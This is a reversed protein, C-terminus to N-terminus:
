ATPGRDAANGQSRRQERGKRMAAPEPAPEDITPLGAVWAELDARRWRPRSPSLLAIAPVRAIFEPRRRLGHAARISIGLFRAVMELDFVIPEIRPQRAEPAHEVRPTPAEGIFSRARTRATMQSRGPCLGSLRDMEPRGGRAVHLGPRDELASARYGGQDRPLVVSPQDAGAASDAADVEQERNHRAFTAPTEHASKEDRNLDNLDCM